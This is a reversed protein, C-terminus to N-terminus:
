FSFLGWFSCFSYSSFLIASFGKKFSYEFKLVPKIAKWLFCISDTEIKKTRDCLKEINFAFALLFFQTEINQKGRTLFRRFGYDEKLVGVITNPQSWGRIPKPLCETYKIDYASAHNEGLYSLAGGLQRREVPLQVRATYDGNSIIANM